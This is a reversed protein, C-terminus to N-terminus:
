SGAVRQQQEAKEVIEAWTDGELMVHFFLGSNRGVQIPKMRALGFARERQERASQWAASLTVYAPDSLLKARLAELDAKLKTELERLDRAKEAQEARQEATLAYRNENWAIKPGIQKRLKALAQQKNM